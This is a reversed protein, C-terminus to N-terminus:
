PADPPSAAVKWQDIPVVQPAGDAIVFTAVTRAWDAQYAADEVDATVQDGLTDLALAGLPRVFCLAIGPLPQWGKDQMIGTFMTVQEIVGSADQVYLFVQKNM